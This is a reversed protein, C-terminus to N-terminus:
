TDTEVLMQTPKALEISDSAEKITPNVLYVLQPINQLM